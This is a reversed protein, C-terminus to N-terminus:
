MVPVNHRLKLVLNRVTSSPFCLWSNKQLEPLPTRPLLNHEFFSKGAGGEMQSRYCIRRRCNAAQKNFSPFGLLSLSVTVLPRTRDARCKQFHQPHHSLTLWKGQAVLGSCTWEERSWRLHCDQKLTLFLLYTHSLRSILGVQAVQLLCVMLSHNRKRSRVKRIQSVPITITLIQRKSNDHPNFVHFLM